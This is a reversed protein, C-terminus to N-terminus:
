LLDMNISNPGMGEMGAGGMIGKAKEMQGSLEDQEPNEEIDEVIEQPKNFAKALDERNLKHNWGPQGNTMQYFAIDSNKKQISSEKISSNAVIRVDLEVDKNLLYDRTLLIPEVTATSPDFDADQPMGMEMNAAGRLENKLQEPDKGDLGPAIQILKKGIKGNTLKRDDIVLFKFRTSGDLAESPQSYYQLINYLRLFHKHGMASEIMQLFLSAINLSNEQLTQVEYRTKRGGTDIGQAQASVTSEEMSRKLLQLVQFSTQDVGSIGGRQVKTGQEMKYVRNPELYGDDLDDVEGDIFIPSNLSANLQDLINNLVADNMDQMSMLKDPFSKGYLFQHHIPEAISIWFPLQKHNWPMAEDYICIGNCWIKREDRVTDYWELVQVKDPGLGDILGWPMYDSDYYFGAPKVKDANKYRGYADRFGDITMVRLRFARKVKTKFDRSNVWITEPYFEEIPVIEGYVDDWADYEVEETVAKGTDPNFEKVFKVKRKDKMFDEFGFVTGETACTYMEWVMQEMEKNHENAADLLDQYIRSRQQSDAVNFISNSKVLVEVRLRASVLKSLITIIKNRTIPDYVNSNGTIFIKGNRRAIYNTRDTSISWVKGKYKVNKIHNKPLVDVTGKQAINVYRSAVAGRLGSLHLLTQLWEKFDDYPKSVTKIVRNKDYSGDGNYIGELLRMKENLPLRWLINTPKRGPILENMKKMVEGNVPFYFRHEDLCKKGNLEKPRSWERFEVGMSILLFRLKELTKLKAQSIYASKGKLMSGDTLMWGVLEAWDEGISFDGNYYGSVPLRYSVTGRSLKGAEIYKYKGNYHRLRGDKNCNAVKIKGEKNAIVRHNTTVLQDTRANKISVMDGDIDYTFVDRAVDSSITNSTIDFSLVKDGKKIEGINKWGDVGLIQTDESVCQWDEKYEPKLRYENMRDVADKVYDIINRSKGSKNFFRIHQNRMDRYENWKQWFSSYENDLSIDTNYQVPLKEVKDM